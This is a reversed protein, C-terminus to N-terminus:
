GGLIVADPIEYREEGVRILYLDNERTAKFEPYSEAQSTDAGTAIGLRFFIVRKIGDKQTVVVTAYGGGLRAVGFECMTMPQGKHQACPIQGTADFKGQGARLASDEPGLVVSGDQSVAPRLFEAAVYGRPGGGLQQVDCWVRGEALQCGFNDLITGSPYTSLLTASTSPRSRLNLGGAVQIVQWDIPGGDDASLPITPTPRAPANEEAGGTTQAWPPIALAQAEEASGAKYFDHISDATFYRWFKDAFTKQYIKFAGAERREELFQRYADLPEPGLQQYIIRGGYQNYLARNLKWQRVVSRGMERRMRAFEAAEAATLDQEATLGMATMGSRMKELFANIEEDTAMIGHDEIYRDFLRTLITQQMEDPNNTYVEEGLVTAVARLALPAFEIISGDAMTALFLHGDKIVYSRVWPFEKLFQDHLSGPPCLAQTVAIQGFRLQGPSSSFWSGTGRNCDARIKVVGNANFEVTYLSHDDPVDTHDNMAAIEVLQWTRATLDSPVEPHQTTAPIPNVAAPVETQSFNMAPTFILTMMVLVCASLIQKV